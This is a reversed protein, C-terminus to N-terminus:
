RFRGTPVRLLSSLDDGDPRGILPEILLSVGYNDKSPDVSLGTRFLFDKGVRVISLSHGRNQGEALDFSTGYSSIWKQSMAYSYSLALIDSDLDGLGLRRYGVYLSGRTPRQTLIGVSFTEQGNDFVDYLADALLTTREGVNWAYRASLLGVDEGFNEAATNGDAGPFLSMELDLTMWDKVRRNAPSGTKTQLRHRWGLRLVNQDNVLEHFPATVARGAGTRLAYGRPDATDPLVGGYTLQVLRERFREQADDDFRNYQAIEDLDATSEAVSYDADFVMKHALGNLGWIDSRVYPMIRTMMVSARVGAVGYARSLEDGDLAEDWYALEGMAYPTVNMAGVSMPLTLEHRTMAVVGSRDAVWPLPDYVAAEEGASDGLRGGLNPPRDGRSLSGYGLSSHSSWNLSTGFSDLPVIPQGLVTVDAKPLWQTQNNFDNVNPRGLLSVSVNDSQRRLELLTEVDKENDWRSEEYQELFNYDSVFGAEGTLSVGLPLTTRHRAVAFGRLSDEFELDRRGLGLNDDGTDYIVSADGFGYSRAPLGNVDHGFDYDFGTGLQPGRESLYNLDATWDTGPPLPLGFIEALDVRTLVQVGFVSDAEFSVRKIPVSFDEAPVALYPVRVIPVDGLLFQNNTSTLWPETVAEPRGTAPNITQGVPRQEVRIQSAQLRYTPKGFRSATVWGNTAEIEITNPGAAQLDSLTQFRVAQARVRLDGRLRPVYSRVDSNLLLGRGERRDFFAESARAVTTGQRLVINGRLYVQFPTNEDLRTDSNLGGPGAADTWIVASDATLDLLDGELPREIVINVGRTITIVQEPPTTNPLPRSEVVPDVGFNRPSIIVRDAMSVPLPLGPATLPPAIGFGLSDPPRPPAIPPAPTFQATMMPPQLARAEAGRRVVPAADTEAQVRDRVDILALPQSSRLRLVRDRASTRRGDRTEHSLGDFYLDVSTVGEQFSEWCVVERGEWVAEGLRVRVEGRLIRVRAPGDDWEQVWPASVIVDDSSRRIPQRAALSQLSLGGGPLEGSFVSSGDTPAEEPASIASLVSRPPRGGPDVTLGPVSRGPSVVNSPTPDAPAGVGSSSGAPRVHPLGEDACLASAVCALATVVSLTKATLLADHPSM